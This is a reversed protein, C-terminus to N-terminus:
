TKVEALQAEVKELIEELVGELKTVLAKSELKLGAVSATELEAAIDGSAGM